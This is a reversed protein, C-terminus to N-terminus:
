SFEKPHGNHINHILNVLRLAEQEIRAVLIDVKHSFYRYFFLSPIAIALGAATAVLAQAIGDAMLRTDGDDGHISIVAFIDIMGLVTGLLGLLPTIAAITGLFSIFRELEHVVHRGTDEVGEKVLDRGHERNLLAAVVVQGLPSRLMEKDLNLEPIAGLRAWNHLTKVLAPPLVRQSRLFWLREFIIVSALISCAILPLM